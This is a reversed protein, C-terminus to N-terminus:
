SRDIIANIIKAETEYDMKFKEYLASSRRRM